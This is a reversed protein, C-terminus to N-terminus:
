VILTFITFITYVDSNTDTVIKLMTNSSMYKKYINNILLSKMIM